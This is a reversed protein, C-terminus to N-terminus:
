DAFTRTTDNTRPMKAQLTLNKRAELRNPTITVAMWRSALQRKNSSVSTM